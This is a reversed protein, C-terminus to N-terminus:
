TEEQHFNSSFNYVTKVTNSRQFQHHTEAQEPSTEEITAIKDRKLLDAM